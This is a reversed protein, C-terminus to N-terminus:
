DLLRECITVIREQEPLPPVAILANNLSAKSLNYFAQGSKKVSAKCYARHEPSTLWIHLYRSLRMDNILPTLFFVFGGCTTDPIDTRVLAAKGVNELSTVAPTIIQGPLLMLNPDVFQDAIFVDSDQLAITDAQSINGGRLVRIMRQSRVDLDTKKYGLGSSLSMISELRVWEWSDPIEFPIEDDICVPEGKGRKEYYGGDSARYIVSEGSKPVKIKKEKILQAREARIRELLVSAPEDNPDQPVLKGQVALQLISNRLRDPLEADLQERREEIEGYSKVHQDLEDLKSHIRVQEQAPPIPMLFSPIDGLNIKFTHTGGGVKVRQIWEFGIPSDICSVVWANLDQNILRLLGLSVFISFEYDVDVIIPKGLTGIRCLLMDGNQPKVRKCLENHTKASVYKVKSLDFFGKSINQVSLFKVGSEKYEPTKHTGDSVLMLLTELRVWEWSEPIEFPIEDDICRESLVHGRADVRKEYHSGDSARYIVSEGGKSAKIKKEKLLEAREARIRELLVSAPEDNPDQPVLKGQVALQLISNRLDKAKM